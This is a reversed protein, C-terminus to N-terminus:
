TVIWWRGVDPGSGGQIYWYEGFTLGDAGDHSRSRLSFSSCNEEIALLSNGDARGEDFHVVQLQGVWDISVACDGIAYEGSFHALLM